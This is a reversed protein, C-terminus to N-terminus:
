SVQVSNQQHRCAHKRRPLGTSDAPVDHQHLDPKRNRSAASLVLRDESRAPLLREDSDVHRQDRWALVSDPARPLARRDRFHARVRLTLRWNFVYAICILGTARAAWLTFPPREDWTGQFVSCVRVLQGHVLQGSKMRDSAITKQRKQTILATNLVMTIESDQGSYTIAKNTNKHKRSLYLYISLHELGDCATANLWTPPLGCTEGRTRGNADAVLGGLQMPLMSSM